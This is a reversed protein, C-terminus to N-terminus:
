RETAMAVTQAHPALLPKLQAAVIRSGLMTLHNADSYLLHGDRMAHCLTADCLPAAADFLVLQPIRSQLSQALQRFGANRQDAASRTLACPTRVNRLGLPRGIVCGDPLFGLEPVDLVLIVRKGAQQFERISREMGADYARALTLTDNRSTRDAVQAFTKLSDVGYGGGSLYAPGRSVILVTRMTSDAVIARHSLLSARRCVEGLRDAIPQDNLIPACGNRGTLLLPTSPRQAAIGAFLVEAHSDGFVAVGDGTGPIRWCWVSNGKDALKCKTARQEYALILDRSAGRLITAADTGSESYRVPLGHSQIVLVGVIALAGLTAGYPMLHRASIRVSRALEVARRQWPREILLLTGHALALSPVMLLVALWQETATPLQREQALIHLFALMPWHWLYMPYSRDGLWRAPRASLLTRNLLANPGAAILLATGLVPLLASIGPWAVGTVITYSPVVIMAAGAISALNVSARVATSDRRRADIWPLSLALLGGIGLEWARSHLIFFAQAPDAYALNESLMLSLMVILAIGLVRTRRKLPLLLLVLPWLLYFQEEVGLSWLHLLPKTAAATDFYGVESWLLLNSASLSGAILHRSLNMLEPGTLVCMGILLTGLLVIALAPVIRRCRKWLFDVYRFTGAQMSRDLLGTILFGSIVFFVDVGIFGGPLLSPAVHHAVVLSVALARLGDIDPRHSEPTPAMGGTSPQASPPTVSDLDIACLRFHGV